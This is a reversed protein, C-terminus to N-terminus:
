SGYKQRDCHRVHHDLRARGSRGRRDRRAVACQSHGARLDPLRALDLQTRHPRTPQYHGPRTGREQHLHGLQPRVFQSRAPDQLLEMNADWYSQVTGVDRWYDEFTYAWVRDGDTLMDPMINHGFDHQSDHNAADRILRDILVNKKFVYIGMSVLNSKPQKPKEVFDIVRGSEDATVIGFRHADEIPIRMVGVTVDAQQQEHMEIMPRYDMKYIHDGGLILVTEAKIDMLENINQYVADATGRYWDADKRGLYPSVMRVGGRLRDLDWPKGSGIHDHLSLPRYQTLVLIDDLGSNVCNSLAFDIIRYKGAFPVAPKARKESFISLREGQGGALIITMVDTNPGNGNM